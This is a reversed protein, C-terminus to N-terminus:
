VEKEVHEQGVREALAGPLVGGGGPSQLAGSPRYALGHRHSMLCVAINREESKISKQMIGSSYESNM